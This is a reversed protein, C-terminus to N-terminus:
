RLFEILGGSQLISSSAIMAAKYATEQIALNTMAQTIDVDETDSLIENIGLRFDDWYLETTEIRNLKAGVRSRENLIQKLSDDLMPLQSAIASTDNAMLGNNLDRLVNFINVSGQFVEEGDSNIKLEINEGIVLNIAGNNPDGDYSANYNADKSYTAVDTTHGSFIHSGSIETNSLQLIQDFINKIEETAIARNDANSTETAQYEALEKARILLLNIDDLTTDTITLWSKGQTINEQYQDISSITKRYDLVQSMGIPSDSPKNIKKGSSIVEELKVMDETNKFLNKIITDAMLSNTVRM